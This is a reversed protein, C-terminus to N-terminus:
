TKDFDIGVKFGSLLLQTDLGITDARGIESHIQVREGAVKASQDGAFLDASEAISILLVVDRQAEILLESIRLFEAAQHDRGAARAVRIPQSSRAPGPNDM